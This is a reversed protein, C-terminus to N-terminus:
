RWREVDLKRNTEPDLAQFGPKISNKGADTRFTVSALGVRADLPTTRLDLKSLSKIDEAERESVL